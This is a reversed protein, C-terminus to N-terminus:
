SRDRVAGAVEISAPTGLRQLGEVVGRQDAAPRNQSMKWKGEIREVRIEIGVIAKTLGEIYSGPADDVSWALGHTSEHALTLQRLHPHLAEGEFISARGSVHVAAYNWTPVVKGHEQKSPYWSPSIYHEPGTFVVLVEARDLSEWQRNARAMHCRLIGTSSDALMPIHSAMLGAPESHSILVGLPHQRVFEYLVDTQTEAFPAPTYM